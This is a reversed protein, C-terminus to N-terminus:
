LICTENKYAVATGAGAKLRHWLLLMLVTHDKGPPPGEVPSNKDIARTRQKAPLGAVALGVVVANYTQRLAAVDQAIQQVQAPDLSPAAPSAINASIHKTTTEGNLDFIRRSASFM